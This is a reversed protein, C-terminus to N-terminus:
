SCSKKLKTVTMRVKCGTELLNPPLLSFPLHTKIFRREKTEALHKWGPYDLWNVLECKEADM